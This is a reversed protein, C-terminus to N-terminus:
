GVAGVKVATLAYNPWNGASSEASCMLRAQGAAALSGVGAVVFFGRDSGTSDLSLPKKDVNDVVAAGLELWCSSNVVVGDNNNGLAKGTLAYSGAPLDLSALAVPENAVAPWNVTTSSSFGYANSPGVPGQPGAVGAPGQPGAPLQGSKFDKARLSGNKVDASKVSSNIIQKSGVSNKPIAVAAYSTGGLAVILALTSAVNAYSGRRFM